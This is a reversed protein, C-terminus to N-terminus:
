LEFGGVVNRFCSLCNPFPFYDIALMDHPQLLFCFEHPVKGFFFDFSDSYISFLEVNLNLHSKIDSNLTVFYM